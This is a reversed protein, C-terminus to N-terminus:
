CNLYLRLKRSIVVNYYEDSFSFIGVIKGASSVFLCFIDMTRYSECHQGPGTFIKVYQVSYYKVLKINLYSRPCEAPLGGPMVYENTTLNGDFLKESVPIKNCFLGSKGLAVNVATSEALSNIPYFQRKFKLTQM